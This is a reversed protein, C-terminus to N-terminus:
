VKVEWPEGSLAAYGCDIIHQREEDSISEDSLCLRFFEGKLSKDFILSNEDLRLTSKDKIEFYFFKSSFRAEIINTNIKLMPDRKGRLVIRLLNERGADATAESILAEIDSNSLASSIDIDFILQRRRASPIFKHTTATGDTDILVFGCEGAEDFGRGEPTGCYVAVSSRGVKRVTYSHYHGLAYYDVGRGDLEGAGIVGGSDSRDRLEGHLVAITKYESPEITDMMNRATESRGAIRIDGLYFYTWDKSFLSLNEPLASTARSIADGEHNGPLYLFKIDPHRRIITLVTDIGRASIRETDFMDGAIIMAEAGLEESKRCLAAFSEELERARIVAKDSPLRSTLPSELHLDSTHIIKM